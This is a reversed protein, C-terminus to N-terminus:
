PFVVWVDRKPLKFVAVAGRQTSTNRVLHLPHRLVLELVIHKRAFAIRWPNLSARCSLLSHLFWTGTKFIEQLAIIRTRTYTPNPTAPIPLSPCETSSRGQILHM